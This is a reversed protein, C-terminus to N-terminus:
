TKVRMIFYVFLWTWGVLQLLGILLAIWARVHTRPVLSGPARFSRIALVITFPAALLSLQLLLLSFLGTALAMSDYLPRSRTLLDTRKEAANVCTPCLVRGGWDIRCLGCVFRGCSECSAVARKGAHAFCAAEGAAQVAEGPSSEPVRVLAPYLYAIAEVGCRCRVAGGGPEYQLAALCV